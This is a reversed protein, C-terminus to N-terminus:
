GAAQQPRAGHNRSQYMRGLVKIQALVTEGTRWAGGECLQKILLDTVWYADEAAIPVARSPRDVSTDWVKMFVNPGQNELSFGKTSQGQPGHNKFEAFPLVGLMVAAVVPLENRTVMLRVKNPWDYMKQGESPRVPGTKVAADVFVTPEGHRTRGAEFCLGAKGGYVHRQLREQPADSRGAGDGAPRNGGSPGEESGRPPIPESSDRHAPASTPAGSEDAGVATTVRIGSTRFLRVLFRRAGPDGRSAKVAAEKIRTKSESEAIREADEGSLKQDFGAQELLRNLDRLRFDYGTM